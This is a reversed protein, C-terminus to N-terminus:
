GVEHSMQENGQSTRTVRNHCTRRGAHMHRGTICFAYAHHCCQQVAGDADRTRSGQTPEAENRVEQILFPM